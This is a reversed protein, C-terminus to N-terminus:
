TEKEVRRRRVRGLDRLMGAAIAATVAVYLSLQASRAIGPEMLMLMLPMLVLFRDLSTREMLAYPLSWIAYWPALEVIPLAPFAYAAVFIFRRWFLAAGVAGIAVLAALWAFGDADAALLHSYFSLGAFYKPGALVYSIGVAAAITAAAAAVRVSSSRLRVFILCGVLAFPLKVLAACIVLLSGALVSRQAIVIAAVVFTCAIIDNHPNAVYQFLLAPNLATVALLAPSLGAARLLWLLLIFWGANAVRMLTVAAVPSHLWGVLAQIYLIFGPGYASPLVRQTCWQALPLEPLSVAHPAPAFAGFGLKAYMLYLFPDPSTLAPALVAATLTAVAVAAVTWAVKRSPQTRLAGFLVALLASQILALAVLLFSPVIQAPGGSDETLDAVVPMPLHLWCPSAIQHMGMYDIVALQASFAVALAFATVVGVWARPTRQVESPADLRWVFRRLGEWILGLFFIGFYM